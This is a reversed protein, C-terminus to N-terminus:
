LQPQTPTSARSRSAGDPGKSTGTLLLGDLKPDARLEELGQADVLGEVRLQLQALAKRHEALARVTQVLEQQSAAPSPELALGCVGSPVPGALALEQAASTREAVASPFGPMKLIEMVTEDDLNWRGPRPPEEADGNTAAPARWMRTEEQVPEAGCFFFCKGDRLVNPVTKIKGPTVQEDSFSFYLHGTGQPAPMAANSAAAPSAAGAGAGAGAGAAGPPTPSAPDEPPPPLPVSHVVWTRGDKSSSLAALGVLHASVLDGAGAGAFTLAGQLADQSPEGYARDFGLADGAVKGRRRTAAAPSLRLYFGMLPYLLGQHGRVSVVAELDKWAQALADTTRNLVRLGFPLTEDALVKHWDNGYREFGACLTAYENPQFESPLRRERDARDVLLKKRALRRAREEKEVVTHQKVVLNIQDRMWGRVASELRRSIPKRPMLALPDGLAFSSGAAGAHGGVASGHSSAADRAAAAWAADRAAAKPQRQKNGSEGRAGSGYGCKTISKFLTRAHSSSPGFGYSRLIRADVDTPVALMKRFSGAPVSQNVMLRALAGKERIKWENVELISAITDLVNAVERAAGPDADGKLALEAERVCAAAEDSLEDPAAVLAAAASDWDSERLKRQKFVEYFPDLDFGAVLLPSSKASTVACLFSEALVDRRESGAGGRPASGSHFEAPVYREAERDWTAVNDDKKHFLRLKGSRQDEAKMMGRAAKAYVVSPTGHSAAGAGCLIMGRSAKVYVASATGHSAAGAACLTLERLCTEFLGVEKECWELHDVFADREIPGLEYYFKYESPPLPRVALAAAAECLLRTQLKSDQLGSLVAALQHAKRLAEFTAGPATAACATPCVLAVALKRLQLSAKRLPEVYVAGADDDPPRQVVLRLLLGDTTLRALQEPSDATNWVAHHEEGPRELCWALVPDGVRPHLSGEAGLARADMQDLGSICPVGLGSATRGWSFRLGNRGGLSCDLAVERVSLDKDYTPIATALLEVLDKPVDHEPKRNATEGTVPDALASSVALVKPRARRQAKKKGGVADEAGAGASADAPAVGDAPAAGAGAAAVKDEEPPEAKGAADDKPKRQAAVDSNIKDNLYIASDHARELQGMWEVARAVVQQWCALATPGSALVVSKTTKDRRSIVCRPADSGRPGEQVEFYLTSTLNTVDLGSSPAIFPRQSRFGVPYLTGHAIYGAGAVFKGVADIRVGQCMPANGDESTGLILKKRLKPLCDMGGSDADPGLMYLPPEYESGANGEEEQEEEEEEGDASKVKTKAAEDSSDDDILDVVESSAGPPALDDGLPEGPLLAVLGRELNTWRRKRMATVVGSGCLEEAKKAAKLAARKRTCTDFERLWDRESRIKKGFCKYFTVQKSRSDTLRIVKLETEMVKKRTAEKSSGVVLKLMQGVAIPLDTALKSAEVEGGPTDFLPTKVAIMELANRISGRFLPERVKNLKDVSSDSSSEDSDSGSDDNDSRDSGSGGGSGGGSSGDSSSSGSSSGGGGGGGGDDSRRSNDSDSGGRSGSKSGVSKGAINTESSGQSDGSDAERGAILESKLALQRKYSVLLGPRRVGGPGGATLKPQVEERRAKKDAPTAGKDAEQKRKVPVGSGVPQEDGRSAPADSGSAESGEDGTSEDRAPAKNGAAVVAAAARKNLPCYRFSTRLHDTAGCKCPNMRAVQGQVKVAANSNDAEAAQKGIGKLRAAAERQKLVHLPLDEEEKEGPKSLTPRAPMASLAAQSAPRAPKALKAPQAPQATHTPQAPEAPQAPRAPQAPPAVPAPALAPAQTTAAAAAAAESAAANGATKRAKAQLAMGDAADPLPRKALMEIGGAGNSSTSSAHARSGGTASFGAQAKGPTSGTVSAPAVPASATRAGTVAAAVVVAARSAAAAGARAVRAPLAVPSPLARPPSPTRARPSRRVDVVADMTGRRVRTSTRRQSGAEEAAEAADEGSDLRPRDEGEARGDM